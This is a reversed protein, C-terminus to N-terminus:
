NATKVRNGPDYKKMFELYDPEFIVVNNDAAYQCYSLEEPELLNRLTPTYELGVTTSFNERLTMYEESTLLKFIHYETDPTITYAITPDIISQRNMVFFCHRYMRYLPNGVYGYAIEVGIPWINDNRWDDVYGMVVQYCMGTVDEPPSLVKSRELDVSLDTIIKM